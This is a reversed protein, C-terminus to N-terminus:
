MDDINGNQGIIKVKPTVNENKALVISINLEDVFNYNICLNVCIYDDNQYDNDLNVTYYKMESNKNWNVDMSIRHAVKAFDEASYIGINNYLSKNTDYLQMQSNVSKQKTNEFINNINGIFNEVVEIFEEKSAAIQQSNFIQLLSSNSEYYISNTNDSNNALNMILNISAGNDYTIVLSYKYYDKNDESEITDVKISNCEVIEKSYINTSDWAIYTFDDESIIGMDNIGKINENYVDKWQKASKDKIESYIKPLNANALTKINNEIDQKKLNGDYNRLIVDLNDIRSKGSSEQRNDWFYYSKDAKNIKSYLNTQEENNLTFSLIYNNETEEFSIYEVKTIENLNNYILYYEINKEFVQKDFSEIEEFKELGIVEIPLEYVDKINENQNQKKNQILIYFSLIILLVIIIFVLIYKKNKM